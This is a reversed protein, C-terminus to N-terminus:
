GFMPNETNEIEEWQKILSNIDYSSYITEIIITTMFSVIDGVKYKRLIPEVERLLNDLSEDKSCMAYDHLIHMGIDSFMINNVITLGNVFKKIDEDTVEDEINEKKVETNKQKKKTM